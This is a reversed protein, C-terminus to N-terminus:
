GSYNGRGRCGEAECFNCRGCQGQFLINNSPGMSALVQAEPVPTSVPLETAANFEEMYYQVARKMLNAGAKRTGGVRVENRNNWLSWAGTIVKAAAEIRSVEGM